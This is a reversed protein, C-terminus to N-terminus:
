PEYKGLAGPNFERRTKKPHERNWKEKVAVIVYHLGYCVAPLVGFGVALFLISGIADKFADWEQYMITDEKRM